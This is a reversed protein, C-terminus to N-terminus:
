TSLPVMEMITEDANFRKNFWRRVKPPTIREVAEAVAVTKRVLTRAIRSSGFM